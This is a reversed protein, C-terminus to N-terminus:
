GNKARRRASEALNKAVLKERKEDFRREGRTRADGGALNTAVKRAQREEAKRAQRALGRDALRDLTNPNADRINQRADLRRTAEVTEKGAISKLVDGVHLWRGNKDRKEAPNFGFQRAAYDGLKGKM